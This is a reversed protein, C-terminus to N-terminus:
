KRMVLVHSVILTGIFLFTLLATGNISRNMIFLGVIAQAVFAAISGILLAERGLYKRNGSERKSRYIGLIKFGLITVGVCWLLLLILIGYGFDFTYGFIGPLMYDIVDKKSVLIGYFVPFPLGFLTVLSMPLTVYGDSGGSCEPGWYCTGQIHGFIASNKLVMTLSPLSYDEIRSIRLLPSLVPMKLLIALLELLGFGIIVVGAVTAMRKITFVSKQRFSKSIIFFGLLLGIFWFILFSRHMIGGFITILGIIIYVFLRLNTIKIGVDKMMPIAALATVAALLAMPGYPHAFEYHAIPLFLFTADMGFMIVFGIGVILAIFLVLSLSLPIINFVFMVGIQMIILLEIILQLHNEAILALKIGGLGRFSRKRPTLIKLKTCDV